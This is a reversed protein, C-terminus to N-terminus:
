PLPTDLELEHFALRLREADAASALADRRVYDGAWPETRGPDVAGPANWREHLVVYDRALRADGHLAAWDAWTGHVHIFTPRTTALVYDRFAAGDDMLTRAITRDCLGALDFIRLRSFYLMGGLDPTLLSYSGSGLTAALADYRAAFQAIRAFPVTPNQAFDATRAAHAAASQALLVVAAAPALLRAGRGSLSRAVWALAEGLSWYFFLFFGTAFRYEGMWDVPLLLFAATALLLYISLVLARRAAAVGLAGAVAATVVVALAPWALPGVAAHALDLARGLDVAMMWTRVKAHYTNPVWDGFYAHRFLLYSGFVVTFAALYVLIRRDWPRWRGVAMRVIPYAAAYLVADPRTLALLAAVVGAGISGMRVEDEGSRLAIAASATLLFALLPNELGSVGWIVFSSDLALLLTASAAIWAAPGGAAVSRALIAFAGLMLALALLKPTWLPDFAGVALFPALLATWLPNSFGELPAVGPQSVLGHGSGLNRAYAFTIGADDVLWEGLLLAHGIALLGAVVVTVARVRVEAAPRAM